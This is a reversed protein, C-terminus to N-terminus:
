DLNAELEEVASVLADSYSQYESLGSLGVIPDNIIKTMNEISIGLNNSNNAIRLHYDVLSQPVPTVIVKKAFNIYAQSITHLQDYSQTGEPTTNAILMENILNLEDGIGAEKYTEYYNQITVYYNNRDVIDDSATVKISNENYQNILNPNVIKQGLASSFNNIAAQDIEGSSKMAAYATFFERAFRDTETLNEEDTTEPIDLEKKKNEIYVSDPIDEFTKPDNKNTGWLAEEWDAISDRDTDREILELVTQNETKLSGKGTKKNFIQEKTISFLIVFFILIVLVFSATVKIFNKTPFYKSYKKLFAKKNM